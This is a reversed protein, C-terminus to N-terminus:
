AYIPEMTSSVKRLFLVDKGFHNYLRLLRQAVAGLRYNGGPERQVVRSMLCELINSAEYVLDDEMKMTEAHDPISPWESRGVIRPNAKICADLRNVYSVIDDRPFEPFNPNEREQLIARVLYEWALRPHNNALAADIAKRWNSTHFFVHPQTM